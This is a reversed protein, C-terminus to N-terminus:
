YISTGKGRRAEFVYDPNDANLRDVIRKVRDKQDPPFRLGFMLNDSFGDGTFIRYRGGGKKKGYIVWDTNGRSGKRFGYNNCDDFESYGVHVIRDDINEIARRYLAVVFEYPDEEGFSGREDLIDTGSEGCVTRSEVGVWYEGTDLWVLAYVSYNAVDGLFYEHIRYGNGRVMENVVCDPCNRNRSKFFRM